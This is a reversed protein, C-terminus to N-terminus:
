EKAGSYYIMTAAALAAEYTPYEAIFGETFLVCVEGRNDIIGGPAQTVNGYVQADGYVQANGSVRANDYVRANGFVEANDYVQTNGYVRANGYVWANGYVRANDFVRANPGVYATDAVTATLAVIGGGNAHHRAPVPGNGDGFDHSIETM